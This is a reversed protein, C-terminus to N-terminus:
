ALRIVIKGFHAGSAMHKYAAQVEDFDFVKDIVPKIENTAIARNMADFMQTSGVSIGQVNARKALIM